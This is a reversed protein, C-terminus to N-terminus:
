LCMVSWGDQFRGLTGGRAFVCFSVERLTTLIERTLISCCRLKFGESHERSALIVIKVRGIDQQSAEQRIIFLSARRLISSRATRFNSAFGSGATKVNYIYAKFHASIDKGKTFECDGAAAM